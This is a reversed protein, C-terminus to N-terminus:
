KLAYALFLLGGVALFKGLYQGADAPQSLNMLADQTSGEDGFGSFGSYGAVSAASTADAGQEAPVAGLWANWAVKTPAVADAFARVVAYIDPIESASEWGTRMGMFHSVQSLISGAFFRLSDLHVTVIPGAKVASRLGEIVRLNQMWADRFQHVPQSLNLSGPVPLMDLNYFTNM